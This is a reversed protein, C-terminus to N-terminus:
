FRRPVPMRCRKAMSAIIERAPGEGDKEITRRKLPQKQTKM